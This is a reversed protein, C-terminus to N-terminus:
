AIGFAKPYEVRGSVGALSGPVLEMAMWHSKEFPVELAKAAETTFGFRIYYDPEGLVTVIRHGLGTVALLGDRVLEAGVGQRQHSPLVALPALALAPVPENASHIVIPCFQAHGVIRDDELAVLSLTVDDSARLQEVLTAEEERDFAQRLVEAIASEDGAHETRTSIPPMAPTTM